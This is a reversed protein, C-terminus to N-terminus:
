FYSTLFKEFNINKVNKSINLFKFFTFVKSIVINSTNKTCFKVLSKTYEGSTPIYKQNIGIKKRLFIKIISLQIEIYSIM